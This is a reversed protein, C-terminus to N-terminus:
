WCTKNEGITLALAFWSPEKINLIIRKSNREDYVSMVGWIEFSTIAVLFSVQVEPRSQSRAALSPSGSCGEECIWSDLGMRFKTIIRWFGAQMRRRRKWLLKVVTVGLDSTNHCHLQIRAILAVCHLLVLLNGVSLCSTDVDPTSFISSLKREAWWAQIM